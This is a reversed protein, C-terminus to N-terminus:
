TYKMHKNVRTNSTFACSSTFMLDHPKSFLDINSPLDAEVVMRIPYGIDTIRSDDTEDGVLVLRNVKGLLCKKATPGSNM